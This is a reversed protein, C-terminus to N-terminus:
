PIRLGILLFPQDSLNFDHNGIKIAHRFIELALNLGLLVPGADMVRRM